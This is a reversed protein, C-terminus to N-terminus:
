THPLDRRKYFDQFAPAETRLLVQEVDDRLQAPLVRTGLDWLGRKRLRVQEGLGFLLDNVIQECHKILMAQSRLLGLVQQFAQPLNYFHSLSQRFPRRM